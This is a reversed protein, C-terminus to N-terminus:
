VFFAKLRLFFLLEAVHRNALGFIFTLDNGRLETRNAAIFVRKLFDLYTAQTRITAAGFLDNLGDFVEFIM